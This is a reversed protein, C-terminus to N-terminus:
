CGTLCGWGRGKGLLMGDGDLVQLLLSCTGGFRQYGDLLSCSLLDRFVTVKVVSLPLIRTKYEQCASQKYVSEMREVDLVAM